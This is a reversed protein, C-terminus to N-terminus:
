FGSCTKGPSRTWGRVALTPSPINRSRNSGSMRIHDQRGAHYTKKITPKRRKRSRLCPPKSRGLRATKGCCPRERRVTCGSQLLCQTQGKRFQRGAVGGLGINHPKGKITLRQVWSLSGNPSVNIYLTDGDGYLGPKKKRLSKIKVVTLKGM